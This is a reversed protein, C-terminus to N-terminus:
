QVVVKVHVHRDNARAQCADCRRPQQFPASDLHGQDFTMTAGTGIGAVGCRVKRVHGVLPQMPDDLDETAVGRFREPLRPRRGDVLNMFDHPGFRAIAIELPHSAIQVAAPVPGVFFIARRQSFVAPQRLFETEIRPKDVGHRPHVAGSDHAAVIHVPAEHIPRHEQLSRRYGLFLDEHESSPWVGTETIWVLAGGRKLFLSMLCRSLAVKAGSDKPIWLSPVPDEYQWPLVYFEDLSRRGLENAAQACSLIRM